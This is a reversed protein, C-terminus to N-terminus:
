GGTLTGVIHGVWGLAAALGPPEVESRRLTEVVIPEPDPEPEPEAEVLREPEPPDFRESGAMVSVEGFHDFGWDMLAAADQFHGGAGESGMVVSFLTRGDQQAAAVMVLLARGTFGTKVGLAGPYEELLKNTARIQRKTGDPAEPFTQLEVLAMDRFEPFGMVAVGMTLLDRASSYHGDADLGHPNVFHTHELGLERAENNMMEVFGEVSGGIHEAVAMAADNASRVVLATVLLRLPLSEGPLLGIEAEGVDAARQSIRVMDNLNGYKLALYATMIKTTSAMAREDDAQKSGLVVGADADYLIWSGASVEPPTPAAVGGPRPPAPVVLPAALAAGPLTSLSVAVALLAAALIRIPKM